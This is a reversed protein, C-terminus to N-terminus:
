QVKVRMAISIRPTDSHSRPVAHPTNPPLVLCEGPEPTYVEGDIIVPVPPDGLQAYFIVTWEPHTHEAVEDGRLWRLPVVSHVDHGPKPVLERMQALFMSSSVVPLGAAPNRMIADWDWSRVAALHRAMMHTEVKM